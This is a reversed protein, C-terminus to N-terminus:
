EALSPVRQERDKGLNFMKYEKKPFNAILAGLSYPKTELIDNCGIKRM